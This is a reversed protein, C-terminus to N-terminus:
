IKQLHSEEEPEVEGREDERYDDATSAVKNVEPIHTGIQQLFIGEGGDALSFGQGSM